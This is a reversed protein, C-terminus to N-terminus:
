RYPDSCQGSPRGPIPARGSERDTGNGIIINPGWGGTTPSLNEDRAASGSFSKQNAEDAPQLQISRAIKLSFSHVPM